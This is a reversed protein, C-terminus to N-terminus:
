ANTVTGTINIDTHLVGACIWWIGSNTGTYTHKLVDDVYLKCGTTLLELHFVTDATITLGTINVQSNDVDKFRVYTGSDRMYVSYGEWSAGDGDDPQDELSSFGFFANGSAGGAWKFYANSFVGSPVPRQTTSTNSNGWTYGTTGNRKTLPPADTWSWEVTAANNWEVNYVILAGNGGFAVGFDKTSLAGGKATGHIKM